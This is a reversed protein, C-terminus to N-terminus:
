QTGGSPDQGTPTGPPPTEPAPQPAAPAPAQPATEVPATDVPAPEVPATEGPAVPADGAPLEAPQSGMKKSLEQLTKQLEDLDTESAKPEDPAILAKLAQLSPGLYFTKEPKIESKELRKQLKDLSEKAPALQGSEAQLRAQSLLAVEVFGELGTNELERYAKLAADTENAVEHSLAIGELARGRLENDQQTYPHTKVREYRARAEGAKGEDLDVGALGLEALLVSGETKKLALAAEFSARAAKFRDADSSFKPRPDEPMGPVAPEEEVNAGALAAHAAKGLNDGVKAEAKLKRYTFIQVGIWVAIVGVFVWQMVNFHRKIFRAVRDTARVLADDVRESADLGVAAAQAREKSRQERRKEAAAALRERRSLAPAGSTGAPSAQEAPESPSTGEDGVAPDQPATRDSV